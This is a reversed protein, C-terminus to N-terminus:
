QKKGTLAQADLKGIRGHPGVVFPLSLANWNRDADPAEHLAADPHAARWNRGDDTSIDTGNPGVTIWTKTAADYAVSSRYGHPPTQALKWSLGGDGTFAATQTTANLKQYDGGIAVGVFDNRFDFSFIGASETGQAMPTEIRKVEERCPECTQTNEYRVLSIYSHKATGSAFRFAYKWTPDLQPTRDLQLVSNSAAFSGEDLDATGNVEYSLELEREEWGEKWEWLQLKGNVSDGLILARDREGINATPEEFDGVQFADWFGEPNPNKVVLKWSQCGDTTKYLRSLGGKGSSMVIATNADFAQIGRFDLHEAGSPIACPQWLYGGDETRVVTGNTGSAWAIGGGVNDIGRLDATTTSNEMQFQAQASALCAALLGILCIRRRM